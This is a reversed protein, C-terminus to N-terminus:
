SEIESTDKIMLFTFGSGLAPYNFNALSKFSVDPNTNKDLITRMFRQSSPRFGIRAQFIGKQGFGM